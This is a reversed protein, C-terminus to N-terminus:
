NPALQYLTQVKGNAIMSSLAENDGSSILRYMEDLSSKSSAVYTTQNVTYSSNSTPTLDNFVYTMLAIIVIFFIGIILNWQGKTLNSQVSEESDFEKKIKYDVFPIEFLESFIKDIEEVIETTSILKSNLNKSFVLIEDEGSSLSEVEYSLSIFRKEVEDFKIKKYDPFSAIFIGEEEFSYLLQVICKKLDITILGKKEVLTNIANALEQHEGNYEKELVIENGVSTLKKYYNNSYSEYCNPCHLIPEKFSSKSVHIQFYCYPCVIPNYKDSYINILEKKCHYCNVHLDNENSRSLESSGNCNYCVILKGSLFLTNKLGSNCKPCQVYEHEKLEDPISLVFNCSSCIIDNEDLKLAKAKKNEM